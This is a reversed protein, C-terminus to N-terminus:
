GGKGNKRFCTSLVELLHDVTFPKSLHGNMGYQISQRADEDFANATMAIVPITRADEKQSIRIAKTAELGNMVPMQIDMLIADFYYPAKQLYLELAEKGNQATELQFGEMQLLTVAIEMNMKNDEVILLRKGQWQESSDAKEEKKLAEQVTPKMRKYKLPITFYFESGKGLQSKVELEGGMLQVLRSSITLGLGTGGYQQATKASEQEFSRFIRGLAEPAIGIGTDAISFRMYAVDEEVKEFRAQGVVTGGPNTFKIANGILNIFIQNFRLTDLYFYDEEGYQRDFLLNVNKETAQPSLMEKLQCEISVLNVWEPNIEIKGSEIRSVELIDNILGLLYQNSREIKNLCDLTKKRNDLSAKAITTMGSIANMPTRIEHSMRSLFQTKALSVADSHAKAVFTSIIQTLEKLTKRHEEKWPYDKQRSEFGLHGTYIGSDWIACRLCSGMPSDEHFKQVCLGDDDYERSLEELRGPKIYYTNGMQLDEKWRAWQYSYRFSHYERQIEVLSVRDLQFAKGVKALLLNVADDLRKAKSLFELAMDAINKKEAESESIVENLLYEGTYVQVLMAGLENSVDLYCAARGKGHKKVYQLTSEACRYLGNYEDVVATVCMGISASVYLSKEQNYCIAKIRQAIMPGLRGAREKTCNKVFLMFEDGGLRLAIDESGISSKIVDAVEALIADGFVRGEEDNLRQFNDLDLIMMACVQDPSKQEMYDRIKKLGAEKNYLGTTGDLSRARELAMEMEKEKTINEVLGVMVTPIDREDEQIASLTIRSWRGNKEKFEVAARKAGNRVERFVRTLEEKSEEAVMYRMLYSPVNRMNEPLNFYDGTRKPYVVRFGKAYYYFEYISTNSLALRLLENSGENLTLLERNEQEMMKQKNIDLFVSQILPTGDPETQIVEASGIVWLPAGSRQCLRYEFQSTQGPRKASMATKLIKDRDEEMILEPLYWDTKWWFEEQTYGFIRIAERNAKKFEVKGERDLTYQVIGCFVSDFIHSYEEAERKRERSERELEHKAAMEETIDRVVGISIPVGNEDWTKKGINSVWIYSGDRKRIRYRVDYEQDAIMAQTIVSELQAWDDPHVCNVMLNDTAKEFEGYEYGLYDLMNQNVYYVPLGSQLYCGIMGGSVSRNLIDLFSGRMNRSFSTGEDKKWGRPYYEGDEQQLNPTSFHISVIKWGDEQLRCAATIRLPIPSSDFEPSRSAATLLIFFTQTKEDIQISQCTQFQYNYPWPETLLEEQLASVTEQYSCNIESAGTGIWQIKKDLYSVAKHLDREELYAQLFGKMAQEGFNEKM